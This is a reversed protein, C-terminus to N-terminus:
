WQNIHIINNNCRVVTYHRLKHQNSLKQHYLNRLTDKIFLKSELTFLYSCM